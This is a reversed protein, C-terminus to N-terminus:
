AIKAFNQTYMNKEFDRIKKSRQVSFKLKNIILNSISWAKGKVVQQPTASLIQPKPATTDREFGTGLKKKNKM